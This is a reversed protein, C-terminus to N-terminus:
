SKGNQETPLPYKRPRGRGRKPKNSVELGNNLPVEDPRGAGGGTKSQDKRPRGRGRKVPMLLPPTSLSPEHPHPAPSHLREEELQGGAVTKLESQEIQCKEQKQRKGDEGERGGEGEEHIQRLKRSAGGGRGRPRGRKRKRAPSSPSDRGTTALNEAKDNDLQSDKSISPSSYTVFCSPESVHDHHDSDAMHIEGAAAKLQPVSSYKRPRGRGRKAPLQVHSSPSPPAPAVGLHLALSSSCSSSSLALSHQDHHEGAGENSDTEPSDKVRQFFHFSTRQETKREEAEEERGGADEYVPGKLPRGRRAGRGLPRGGSRRCGGRGRSGGSDRMSKPMTALITVPMLANRSSSSSASPTNDTSNLRGGFIEAMAEAYPALQSPSPFTIKSHFHGHSKLSSSSFFDPYYRRFGERMGGPRTPDRSSDRSSGESPSHQEYEAAAVSERCRDHGNMEM